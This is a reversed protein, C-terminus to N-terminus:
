NQIVGITRSSLKIVSDLFIYGLLFMRHVYAARLEFSAGRKRGNLWILTTQVLAPDLGFASARVEEAIADDSIADNFGHISAARAGQRVANTITNYHWTLMAGEIVGFLLLGFALGVLTAEVLAAGRRRNNRRMAASNM